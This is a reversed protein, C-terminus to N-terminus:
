CCILHFMNIADVLKIWFIKMINSQTKPKTKVFCKQTFIKHFRAKWSYVLCSKVFCFLIQWDCLEICITCSPFLSNCTSDYERIKKIFHLTQACSTGKRHHLFIRHQARTDSSADPSMVQTFLLCKKGFVLWIRTSANKIKL